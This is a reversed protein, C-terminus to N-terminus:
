ADGVAPGGPVQRLNNALDGRIDALLKDYDVGSLEGVTAVLAATIHVLLDYDMPVVEAYLTRQETIKVSALTQGGQLDPDGPRDRERRVKPKRGRM